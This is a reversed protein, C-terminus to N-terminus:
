IRENKRAPNAAVERRRRPSALRESLFSVNAISPGRSQEIVSGAEPEIVRISSIAALAEGRNLFILSLRYSRFPCARTLYCAGVGFRHGLSSAPHVCCLDIAVADIM